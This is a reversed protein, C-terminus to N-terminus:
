SVLKLCLHRQSNLLFLARSKWHILISVSYPQLDLWAWTGNEYCHSSMTSSASKNFPTSKWPQWTSLTSEERNQCHYWRLWKLVLQAGSKKQEKRWGTQWLSTNTIYYSCHSQPWKVKSHLVDNDLHRLGLGRPWCAVYINLGCAGMSYM